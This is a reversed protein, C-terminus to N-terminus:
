RHWSAQRMLVFYIHSQKLQGLIRPVHELPISSPSIFVVVLRSSSLLVSLKLNKPPGVNTYDTGSHPIGQPETGPVSPYQVM